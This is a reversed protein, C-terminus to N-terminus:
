KTENILSDMEKCLWDKRYILGDYFGNIRYIPVKSYDGDDGTFGFNPDSELRAIDVEVETLQNVLFELLYNKSRNM